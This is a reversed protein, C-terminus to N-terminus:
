RPPEAFRRRQPLFYLLWACATILAVAARTTLDHVLQRFFGEVLAALFFLAVSGVAVAGAARGQEAVADLRRRVGPFVLAHGVTLGAAGCLCVALLETVGHPAVWALFPLGMGQAVHIALMAGLVLGNVFLVLLVPVGALFGLALCALGIKANHSFLFSAFHALEGLTGGGDDALVRALEERTSAPGRGGAMEMGVLGYFRDPDARTLAYGCAVGLLTVLVAVWLARRMSRVLAPFGTAFFARAASGLRRRSGYVLLYARASLSELYLLANQDLSIARAVSLSSLAARYLTPLRRLEEPSLRTVGVRDARDILAELEVWAGERERRFQYSRLAVRPARVSRPAPAEATATARSRAKV